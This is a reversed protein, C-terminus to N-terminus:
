ILFTYALPKREILETFNDLLLADEALLTAEVCARSDPPLELSRLLLGFVTIDNMRGLLSQYDKLLELINTYDRDLVQAIIEFFYRWKKIAIRLAHRPARQEPATSVALMQHIQLYMRISADSFYALLSFRNQETICDENLGAVLERVLRDLNRHDFSKLMKVIRKLERTRLESLKRCFKTDSSIEPPVRSRFFIQAEDINRLGGLIQTLKRVSKRLETKSGKPAFPYYLELSARFRRSAVRLDHIDDLDPTKLVARRLRLLDGWQAFFVGRSRELITASDPPLRAPQRPM